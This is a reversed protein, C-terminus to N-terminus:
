HPGLYQPPFSRRARAVSLLMQRSRSDRAPSPISTKKLLTHCRRWPRYKHHRRAVDHWEAIKKNFAETKERYHKLTDTGLPLHVPPKPSAALRVIATALKAPDVPQHYSVKTAIGRM